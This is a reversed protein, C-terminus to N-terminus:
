LGEEKTNSLSDSYPISDKLTLATCIVKTPQHVARKIEERNQRRARIMYDWQYGDGKRRYNNILQCPISGCVTTDVAKREARHKM